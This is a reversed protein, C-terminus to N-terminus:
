IAYQPQRESAALVGIRVAEAEPKKKIELNLIRLNDPKISAIEDWYRDPARHQLPMWLGREKSVEIHSRVIFNLRRVAEAQDNAVAVLDYDLCHAIVRNGTEKLLYHLFKPEGAINM